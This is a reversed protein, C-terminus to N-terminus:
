NRRSFGRFARVHPQGAEHVNCLFETEESVKGDWAETSELQKDRESRARMENYEDIISQPVQHLVETGSASRRDHIVELPRPSVVSQESARCRTATLTAKVPRSERVTLLVNHARQKAHRIDVRADRLALQRPSPQMDANSTYIYSLEM